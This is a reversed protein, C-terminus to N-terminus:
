KDSFDNLELTESYVGDPVIFIKFVSLTNEGWESYVNLFCLVEGVKASFTLYYFSIGEGDDYNILVNCGSEIKALIEDYTKDITLGVLKNGDYEDLATVVFTGGGGSITEGFPLSNKLFNPTLIEPKPCEYGEPKTARDVNFTQRQEIQSGDDLMEVTEVTIVGFTKLLVSPIDAYVRGNEETFAVEFPNPSRNLFHVGLVTGAPIIEVQRNLDYQKLSKGVLKIM